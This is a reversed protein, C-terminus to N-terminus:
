RFPQYIEITRSGNGDAGTGGVLFVSENPLVAAAAGSRKEAPVVGKPMLTDTSFVEADGIRQGQADIGGAIVLDTGVVFATFASRPTKLTIPGPGIQRQRASYILSDGLAGAASKGGVILVRDPPLLFAGHDWRGPGADGEPRVFRPTTGPVFVEAVATDANEGGFILVEPVASVTVATATHGVRPAAMKVDLVTFADDLSPDLAVVTDLATGDADGGFAYTLDADALTTRSRAVGPKDTFRVTILRQEFLDFDPRVLRLV